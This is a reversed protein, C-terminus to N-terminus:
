SSRAFPIMTCGYIRVYPIWLVKIDSVGVQRDRAQKLNDEDKCKEITPRIEEGGVM